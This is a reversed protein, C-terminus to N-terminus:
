DQRYNITLPGDNHDTMTKILPGTALVNAPTPKLNSESVSWQGSVASMKLNKHEIDEERDAHGHVANNDSCRDFLPRAPGELPRGHLGPEHFDGRYGCIYTFRLTAM